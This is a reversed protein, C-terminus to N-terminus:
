IPLTANAWDPFTDLDFVATALTPIMLMTVGVCLLNMVFGAKM